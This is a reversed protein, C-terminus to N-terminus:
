AADFSNAELTARLDKGMANTTVSSSSLDVVAIRLDTWGRLGWRFSKRFRARRARRRAADDVEDAIVVLSLYSVMHNPVLRVKGLAETTMFALLDDLAAEDLRDALQFFLYEHANAEWLKARRALVYRSAESHFEAYGPFVRGGFAHDREVDFCAEHAALLRVLADRKRDEGMLSIEGM